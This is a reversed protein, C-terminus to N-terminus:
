LLDICFLHGEPDVMVTWDESYQTGAKKAGSAIAYEIAKAIEAKNNVFFDVHEMQQQKGAEEPWVPPIYDDNRQFGMGTHSEGSVIRVFGDDAYEIEWSLLKAYFDALKKPNLCDLTIQKIQLKPRNLFEGDM